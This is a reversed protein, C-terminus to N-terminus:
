QFDSYIEITVPADAQGCELGGCESLYFTAAPTSPSKAFTLSAAILGAVVVIAAVLGGIIWRQNVRQARKRRKRM